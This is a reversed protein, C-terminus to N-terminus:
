AAPRDFPSCSSPIDTVRRVARVPLPAYLHPFLEGRRSPEFRLDAAIADTDIELLVLGERHPYHVELTGEVQARQSLHIFGDRMDHAQGIYVGCAQAARWDDRTAIRYLLGDPHLIDTQTM